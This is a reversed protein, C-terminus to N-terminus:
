GVLAIAWPQLGTFTRAVSGDVLDIEHVVGAAPDSVYAHHGDVLLQMRDDAATVLPETRALLTGDPGLISLRGHVDIVVTRSDDDGVASVHVLPADTSLLTWARSRVDLLWAGRVGAVGALDPRDARGSLASAAVEADAPYPISEAALTGGVERRVLVAGEACTFVAGVRTVDADSAGTCEIEDLGPVVIGTRTAIVLEGAVLLAPAPSATQTKVAARTAANTGSEALAEHTLTVIEASGDFRIVTADAGVGVAAPGAGEVTGLPRPSGAFYHSHDGHPQTWRGSDIVDVTSIGDSVRTLLVFRGTGDFAALAGASDAIHSRHESALDLLTLAGHDDAVVLARAPASVEVAGGGDIDDHERGQIGASAGATDGRSEAGEAGEALGRIGRPEASPVCGVLGVPVLLGVVILLAARTWLSPTM